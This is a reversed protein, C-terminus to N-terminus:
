RYDLIADGSSTHARLLRAASDDVRVGVSRDGNHTDVDVRYGAGSPPVLIRVDGSSTEADALQPPRAFDLEVDGSATRARVTAAHLDGAEVDGSASRLSVSGGLGSADVDGSATRVDAGGSIGSISVDGTAGDVEVRTAPPVHVTITTSCHGFSIGPCGGTVAVHDGRVDTTLRPVHVAGSSRADILVSDPSGPVVTIDGSHADISLTRVPGPITRHIERHISGITWSAVQAAACVILVVALGGGILLAIKRDRRATM